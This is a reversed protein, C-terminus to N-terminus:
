QRGQVRYLLAVGGPAMARSTVIGWEVGAADLLKDTIDPAVGLGSAAVTFQQDGAKIRTGDVLAARYGSALAWGPFDQATLSIAAGADANAPTSSRYGRYCGRLTAGDLVAYFITEEGITVVGNTAVWTGSVDALPIATDTATIAAALAASPTENEGSVPNYREVVPRRITVPQGNEIFDPLIDAAEAAYDM